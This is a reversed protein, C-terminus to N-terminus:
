DKIYRVNLRDEELMVSSNEELSIYYEKQNQSQSLLRGLYEGILLLIIFMITFQISSFLVISTWGEQVNDKVINVILSYLSISLAILSGLIGLMSAWRLPKLSNFVMLHSMKKIGDYLNRKPTQSNISPEYEYIKSKSCARSIKMYLQHGPAGTQMIINVVTRSICRAPTSNKPVDYDIWQLLRSSMKRLIIYGVTSTFKPVVVGTIVDFGKSCESVMNKIIEVPEINFRLLVIFDGITNEIGASFAVEDEVNNSLTLWRISPVSFLVSQKQKFSLNINGQDVVVIEYNSYNKELYRQLEQIYKESINSEINTDVQVLVVSVFKDDILISEM